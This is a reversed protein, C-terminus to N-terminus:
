KRLNRRNDPLVANVLDSSPTAPQPIEPEEKKEDQLASYNEPKSIKTELVRTRIGLWTQLFEIQDYLKKWLPFQKLQAQALMAESEEVLINGGIPVGVKITQVPSATVNGMAVHVTTFAVGGYFMKGEMDDCSIPETKIETGCAPRVDGSDFYVSYPNIESRFPKWVYQGASDFPSVIVSISSDNPGPKIGAVATELKAISDSQAIAAADGKTLNRAQVYQSKGQKSFFLVPLLFLSKWWFAKESKEPLVQIPRNLQETSLRGCVRKQNKSFFSILEDDSMMQFDIVEKECSDCHRRLDDVPKMSNWPVHCPEPISFQIHPPKAMVSLYIRVRCRFLHSLM